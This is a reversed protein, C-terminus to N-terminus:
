TEGFFFGEPRVVKWHMDAKLLLGKMYDDRIAQHCMEKGVASGKAKGFNHDTTHFVSGPHAFKFWHLAPGECGSLDITAPLM